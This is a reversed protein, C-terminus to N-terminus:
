NLLVTKQFISHTYVWRNRFWIAVDCFSRGHEQRRHLKDESAFGCASFLIPFLKM